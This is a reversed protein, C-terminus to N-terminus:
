NREYIEKARNRLEDAFNQNGFFEFAPICKSCSHAYYGDRKLSPANFCDIAADLMVPILPDEPDRQAYLQALNICTVASDALKSNHKLIDLAKLYCNEASTFDQQALYVSAMNNLLGAQLYDNKDLTGTYYKEARLYIALARDFFGAASLATGANICITGASVPSIEPMSDLLTLGCEVARLSEPTNEQMRYYGMLESQLFLQLMRDGSCEAESLKTRLYNGVGASDGANFLRDCEAAIGAFTASNLRGSM